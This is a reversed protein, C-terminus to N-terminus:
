VTEPPEPLPMWHTACATDGDDDWGPLFRSLLDDGDVGDGWRAANQEATQWRIIAISSVSGFRDIYAGIIHTGDKPATEIPLWPGVPPASSRAARGADVAKQVREPMRGYHYTDLAALLEALASREAGQSPKETDAM